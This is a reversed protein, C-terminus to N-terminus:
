RGYQRGNCEEAVLLQAYCSGAAGWARVLREASGIKGMSVMSGSDPRGRLTAPQVPAVAPDMPRPTRQAM